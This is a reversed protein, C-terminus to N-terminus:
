GHRHPCAWSSAPAALLSGERHVAVLLEIRANASRRQDDSQLTWVPKIAIHKM